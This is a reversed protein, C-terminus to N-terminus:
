DRKLTVSVPVADASANTWMWCYEHDRAVKLTGKSAVSHDRRVPMVVRKGEHYHINFDLARDATFSWAVKQGQTLKGCVEAVKAPALTFAQEFRGSADWAIDISQAQAGPGSAALALWALSTMGLPAKV